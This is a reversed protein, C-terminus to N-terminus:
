QGATQLRCLGTLAAGEEEFVDNAQEQSAEIEQSAEVEQSAKAETEDAM